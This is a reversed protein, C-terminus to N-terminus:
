RAAAQKRRKRKRRAARGNRGNPSREEALVERAWRLLWDEDEGNDGNPMPMLGWNQCDGNEGNGKPAAAGVAGIDGNAKPASSYGPDSVGAVTPSRRNDSNGKLAAAMQADHEDMARLGERLPGTFATELKCPWAINTVDCAMQAPM